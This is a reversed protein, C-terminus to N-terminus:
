SLPASVDNIHRLCAVILLAAYHLQHLIGCVRDNQVVSM